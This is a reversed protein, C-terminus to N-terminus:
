IYIKYTHILDILYGPIKEARMGAGVVITGKHEYLDTLLLKMSDKIPEPVSTGSNGYGCVIRVTIAGPRGYEVDPYSTGYKRVILAPDSTIVKWYLDTSLTQEVGNTDFYKVYTISQVPPYPLIMDNSWHDFQIDWTQTILARNLYREVQIRASRVLREVLSNEGNGSLHLHDKAEDITFPEVSPPTILKEKM